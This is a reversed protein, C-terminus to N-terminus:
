VCQEANSAIQCLPVFRALCGRLTAKEYLGIGLCLALWFLADQAM